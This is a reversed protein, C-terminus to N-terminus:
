LARARVREPGPIDAAHAHVVIQGCSAKSDSRNCAYALMDLRRDWCSGSCLTPDVYVMAHAQLSQKSVSIHAKNGNRIWVGGLSTLFMSQLAGASEGEYKFGFPVEDASSKIFCRHIEWAPCAYLASIPAFRAVPVHNRKLYMRNLSEGNGADGKPVMMEELVNCSPDLLDPYMRTVNELFLRPLIQLRDNIGGWDEGSPVWVFDTGWASLTQMTLPYLYEMDGRSLVVWDYRTGNAREHQQIVLRCKDKYYFQYLVSRQEFGVEVGPHADQIPQWLEELSRPPEVHVGTPEYGIISSVESNNEVAIFLDADLPRRVM